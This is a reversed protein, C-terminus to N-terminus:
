EVKQACVSAQCWGVGGWEVRGVGVGGLREGSRVGEWEVGRKAMWNKGAVLNGM